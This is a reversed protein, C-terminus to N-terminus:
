ARKEYFALIMAHAKDYPRLQTTREVRFGQGRLVNAEQAYIRGPDRTSDISRAKVALLTGGGPKLYLAANDALIRAQAPQAVDCYLADVEGVFAGYRQPFRADEVLPIVNRRPSAVNAVLDRASRSSFEVAYVVGDEGLIDSVHSVTTGTSAGLYLVIDGPGFPLTPLGRLIAAALKSNYPNWLRYEVDENEEEGNAKILQEGYVSRGKVLNRTALSAAGGDLTAVFVGGFRDHPRVLVV